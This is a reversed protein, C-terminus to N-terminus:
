LKNYIPSKCSDGWFVRLMRAQFWNMKAFVTPKLPKLDEILELIYSGKVL